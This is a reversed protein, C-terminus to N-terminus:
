SLQWVCDSHVSANFVSRFAQKTDKWATRFTQVTHLPCTEFALFDPEMHIHFTLFAYAFQQKLSLYSVIQQISNKGFLFLPNMVVIGVVSPMSTGLLLLAKERHKELFAIAHVRTMFM